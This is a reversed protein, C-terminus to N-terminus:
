KADEVKTGASCLDVLEDPTAMDCKYIGALAFKLAAPANAARILRPAPNELLGSGDPKVLYIRKGNSESM